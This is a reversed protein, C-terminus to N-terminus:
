TMFLIKYSPEKNTLYAFGFAIFDQFTLHFGLLFERYGVFDKLLFCQAFEADPPHM